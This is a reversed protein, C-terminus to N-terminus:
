ITKLILLYVLRQVSFYRNFLDMLDQTDTKIKVVLQSDLGNQQHILLKMFLKSLM